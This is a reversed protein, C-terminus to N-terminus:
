VSIWIAFHLLSFLTMITIKMVIKFMHACLRRWLLSKNPIFDEISVKACSKTIGSSQITGMVGVKGVGRVQIASNLKRFLSELLNPQQRQLRGFNEKNYPSWIIHSCKKLNSRVLFAWSIVKDFDHSTFHSHISNSSLLHSCIFSSPITNPFIFISSLLHYSFYTFSHIIPYSINRHIVYELIHFSVNVINDQLHFQGWHNATGLVSWLRTNLHQHAVIHCVPM